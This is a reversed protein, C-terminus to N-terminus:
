SGGEYPGGRFYPARYPRPREGREHAADSRGAPASRRSLERLPGPGALVEARHGSAKTWRPLLAFLARTPRASGREHLAAGACAAPADVHRDDYAWLVHGACRTRRWLPRGFFPDETGGLQAAVPAGGRTDAARDAVAGCM